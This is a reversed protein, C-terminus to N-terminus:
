REDEELEIGQSASAWDLQLAELKKRDENISSMANNIPIFINDRFSRAQELGQGSKNSIYYALAEIALASLFLQKSNKKHADQIDEYARIVGLAEHSTWKAEDSLFNLLHKHDGEVLYVKNELEESFEKFKKHAAESKANDIKKNAAKKSIEMKVKKTESM